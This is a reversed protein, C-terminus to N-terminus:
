EVRFAPHSDLAEGTEYDIGVTEFISPCQPGTPHCLVPESVDANALVEAVDFVVVNESVDFDRLVIDNRNSKACEINAFGGGDPGDDTCNSSGVHILTMVRTINGDAPPDVEGSSGADAGLNVGADVSADFVGSDVGPASTNASADTAPVGVSTTQLELKLFKYGALWGWMMPGAQLPAPLTAPDAHNVDVPVSTSFAVGTYSGVPATLHVVTNTAADGESCAGEDSAFDLLAVGGNQYDSVDKLLAEVQEGSETLLRVNSVYFRLDIPTVTSGSPGIDEYERGCEFDEEGVKARFELTLEIREDEPLVPEGCLAVCEDYIATCWAVNGAHGVEHCLHGLGSGEDFDHCTSGMAKCLEVSMEGGDAPVSGADSCHAFCEPAIADCTTTEGEASVRLCLNGLGDVDDQGACATAIAPCQNAAADAATSADNQTIDGTSADGGGADLQKVPVKSNGCAGAVLCIVPVSVLSVFRYTM